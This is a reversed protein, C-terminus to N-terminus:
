RGTFRPPRKAFFAALAEAHDATGHATAQLEASLDMVTAFDATVAARLLRKTMRLALPPQAAIEAALAATRAPLEAPPVVATVLGWEAATAADIVRGTFLLEAARAAGLVRPLLWAGGDGPVLGLKLFTAGFRADSAAIRLDALCAVDNGLGIAPGNVAAILPLELDWLARVLRHIGHRYRDVIEAPGGAFEGTRDRMAKLDGGASFASGAGTLVVVRLAPDANLAACTAAFWDGDGPLGLPNRRDARDITLTAVAGARTCRLGDGAPIPPTPDTMSDNM